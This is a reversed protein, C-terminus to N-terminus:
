FVCFGMAPVRTQREQYDFLASYVCNSFEVEGCRTSRLRGACFPAAFASLLRLDYAPAMAELGARSSIQMTVM